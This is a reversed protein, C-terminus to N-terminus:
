GHDETAIFGLGASIARATEVVRAAERKRALSGMREQPAALTVSALVTGDSAYIPAGIAVVNPDLEDDCVDYGLQRVEALHEKVASITAPTDDTYQALEHATLVSDIVRETQFALLARASAAANVPLEQGVRVFLRLPRTGDVLAVCVARHGVLETLFVTEETQASLAQMHPRAVDAVRRVGQALSLAASGLVYRKSEATRVVFEEAALVAMLRHVTAIPIDLNDSLERLTQGERHAGLLRLVALARVVVQM